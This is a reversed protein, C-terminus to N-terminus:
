LKEGGDKKNKNSSLLLKAVYIFATLILLFAAVDILKNM